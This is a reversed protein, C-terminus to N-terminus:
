LLAARLLDKSRGFRLLISKLEAREPVFMEMDGLWVAQRTAPVLGQWVGAEFLHFGAFFEVPLPSHPWRAFLDSRFRSDLSGPAPDLGLGTLIPVADRPDLLVDVDGIVGPDAGHLAVAASALIWWRYRAPGLAATVWVLTERLPQELTMWNAQRLPSGRAVKDCNGDLLIATFRL